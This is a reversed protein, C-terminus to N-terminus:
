PWEQFPHLLAAAHVIAYATDLDETGAAIHRLAAVTAQMLHAIAQRLGPEDAVAAGAPTPTTPNLTAHTAAADVAALQSRAEAITEALRMWDLEARVTQPTTTAAATHWIRALAEYAGALTPTGALTATAHNLYSIWQQTTRADTM